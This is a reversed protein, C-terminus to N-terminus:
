EKYFPSFVFFPICCFVNYAYRFESFVPTAVLLSAIVAISPFVCFFSDKNNRAINIIGLGAMIWVYFGICLFIQFFSDNLYFECYPVFLMDLREIHMTRDIGLDNNGIIDLTWIWYDYGGNWYGRTQDIWAKIYEGPHYIGIQLYLKLYAAKNEELYEQNATKRVLNKIPDSIHKAYTDPIAELDIVKGLLTKQEGTLDNCDTVVRAIQQAPISLGEIVDPQSVNFCALVPHKLVFTFLLVFAFTLCLKIYKKRYLWAFVILTVLFAFWGNSRFLCMGISGILIVLYNMSKRGINKMFRFVSISFLLVFGGFMVDKWMTFSYIIHFPMVAYFLWCGIILKKSIKMQYLTVVTYSFCCAMFLIQFVGYLAVAANLDDFVKMGVFLFFKILMTHYFPHHNSYAGAMIQRIQDCSDPSLVGPYYCLFLMALNILSIATVSLGFVVTCNWSHEYKGWYFDRTSEMVFRLSNYASFFGGLFVAVLVLSRYLISHEQALAAFVNYNAAMVVIAFGFSSATILLKNEKKFRNEHSRTNQYLSVCGLVGAILYPVYYSDSKLLFMMWYLIIIMQIMGQKRVM